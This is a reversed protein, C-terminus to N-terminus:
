EVDKNEFEINSEDYVYIEAGMNLYEVVSDELEYLDIKTNRYGDVEIIWSPESFSNAGIAKEYVSGGKAIEFISDSIRFSIYRMEEFDETGKRYEIGFECFVGLTILPLRELAYLANGLGIVQRPIIKNHKLFYWAINQSIAVAYYDDDYLEFQKMYAGDEM